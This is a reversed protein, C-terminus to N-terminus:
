PTEQETDHRAADGTMYVGEIREWYNTRYRDPDGWLTRAISPWPRKVILFGEANVAV